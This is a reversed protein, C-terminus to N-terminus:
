KSTPLIVASETDPLLRLAANVKRSLIFNDSKKATLEISTPSNQSILKSQIFRVERVLGDFDDEKWLKLRRKLSETHDKGKSNRNCKQLLLSPTIMLAKIAISQLQSDKVWELILRTCEDIYENGAKGSPLMFLNRKWKIAEEYTLSVAQQLDM